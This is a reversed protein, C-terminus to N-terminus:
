RYLMPFYLAKLAKRKAADPEAMIIRAVQEQRAQREAEEVTISNRLHEIVSREISAFDMHVIKSEQKVRDTFPLLRGTRTNDFIRNRM